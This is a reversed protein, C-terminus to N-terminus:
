SAFGLWRKVITEIEILEDAELTGLKYEFKAAPLSQLMQADFVGPLTFMDEAVSVQFRNNRVQTTRGICGVLVLDNDQLEVSLIAAPRHKGNLGFDAVWVDGRKPRIM